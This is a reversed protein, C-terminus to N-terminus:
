EKLNEKREKTYEWWPLPEAGEMFHVASLFVDQVCPDHRTGTKICLEQYMRYPDRGALKRPHDIGILRLDEAIAKGINPLDELRSVTERKPNKM